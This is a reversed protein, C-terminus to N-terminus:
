GCFAGTRAGELGALWAGAELSVAIAEMRTAVAELRLAPPTKLDSSPGYHYMYGFFPQEVERPIWRWRKEGCVRTSGM